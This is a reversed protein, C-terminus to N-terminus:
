SKPFTPCQRTIPEKGPLNWDINGRKVRELFKNACKFYDGGLFNVYAGGTASPHGGPIRYHKKSFDVGKVHKKAKDGWVMWASSSAEKYIYTILLKTFPKWLQVHEGAGQLPVHEGAGQLPVHKGAKKLPVTLACNLLLVGQDVWPTLDGNILDTKFGERELEMLVNFVAPVKRADVDPQLSFALGTAIGPQPTPDQGLIVVKINEPAVKDLARFVWELKPSFELKNTKLQNELEASIEQVAKQM